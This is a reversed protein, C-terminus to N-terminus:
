NIKNKSLEKQVTEIQPRVKKQLFLIKRFFDLM